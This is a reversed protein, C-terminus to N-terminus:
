LLLLVLLYPIYLPANKIRRWRLFNQVDTRSVECLSNLSGLYYSTVTQDHDSMYGCLQLCFSQHLLIRTRGQHNAQSENDNRKKWPWDHNIIVQRSQLRPFYPNSEKGQSARWVLSSVYIYQLFYQLGIAHVHCTGIQMHATQCCM